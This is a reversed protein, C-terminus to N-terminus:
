SPLSVSMLWPRERPETSMIMEPELKAARLKWGDAHRIIRVHELVGVM